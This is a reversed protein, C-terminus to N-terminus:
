LERGLRRALDAMTADVHAPWDQNADQDHLWPRLSAVEGVTPALAVCDGIDTGRDCLAWLKSALLDQRGLSRVCLARGQLVVVVRSRWGSPLVAALSVPGNNLWDQDLPVGIATQRQAFEQSMAILRSELLPDLVDCDRTPRRIIGLLALAAGGIVILECPYAQEALFRDFAEITTRPDM